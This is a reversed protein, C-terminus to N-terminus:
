VKSDLTSNIVPFNRRPSKAAKQYTVSIVVITIFMSVASTILSIIWCIYNKHSKNSDSKTEDDVPQQTTSSDSQEILKVLKSEIEDLRGNGSDVQNHIQSSARLQENEFKMKYFDDKIKDMEDSHSKLVEGLQVSLDHIVNSSNLRFECMFKKNTENASRIIEFNIFCKDLKKFVKNLSSSHLITFNADACINGKLNLEALKFIGKLFEKEIALISNNTMLLEALNPNRSFIASHIQTLQNAALELTELKQCYCFTDEHLWSIQNFNLQIKEVVQLDKFAHKDIVKIQNQNLKLHYLKKMKSLFDDNIFEVSSGELTVTELRSNLLLNKLSEMGTCNTIDIRKIKDYCSENMAFIDFRSFQFTIRNVEPEIQSCLGVQFKTDVNARDIKCTNSVCETVNNTRVLHVSLLVLFFLKMNIEVM